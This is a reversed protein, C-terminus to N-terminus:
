MRFGDWVMLAVVATIFLVGIEYSDIEDTSAGMAPRLKACSRSLKPITMPLVGGSKKSLQVVV